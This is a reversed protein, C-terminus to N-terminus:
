LDAQLRETIQKLEHAREQLERHCVRLRHLHAERQQVLTQLRQRQQLLSQLQQRSALARRREDEIRKGVVSTVHQFRQVINQFEQCGTYTLFLSLSSPCTLAHAGRNRM